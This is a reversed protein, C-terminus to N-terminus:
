EEGLGTGLVEVKERKKEKIYWEYKEVCGGGEFVRM